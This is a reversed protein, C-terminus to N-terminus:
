KAASGSSGDRALRGTVIWTVTMNRVIRNRCSCRFMGDSLKRAAYGFIREAAPNFSEVIGREDITIIGDVAAEFIGHLRAATDRLEGEFQLRTIATALVNGIAELFHVDEANFVRRAKADVGLVGFAGSRGPVVVAMSSSVGQERMSQPLRSRLDRRLDGIMVPQNLQLARGTPTKENVELRVSSVDKPRWGSASRLWMSKNKASYEFVASFDVGMVERLVHAADDCVTQFNDAQLADLSFRATIAQERTRRELQASRGGTAARKAGSLRRATKKSRKRTLKKMEGM